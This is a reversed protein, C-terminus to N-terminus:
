EGCSTVSRIALALANILEDLSDKFVALAELATSSSAFFAFSFSTTSPTSNIVAGLVLPALSTSSNSKALFLM